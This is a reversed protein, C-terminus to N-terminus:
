LLTAPAVLGSPSFSIQEFTVTHTCNEKKVLVMVVVPVLDGYTPMPMPLTKKL